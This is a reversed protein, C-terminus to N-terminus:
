PTLGAKEKQACYAVWWDQPTPLDELTSEMKVIREEDGLENLVMMIGALVMLPIPALVPEPVLQLATKVAVEMLETLVLAVTNVAGPECLIPDSVVYHTRCTAPRQEYITCTKTETNLFVCPIRKDFFRDNLVPVGFESLAQVAERLKPLWKEWDPQKLIHDAILVGDAFTVQAMLYCCSACGKKCTAKMHQAARYAANGISKWQKSLEGIGREFEKNKTKM